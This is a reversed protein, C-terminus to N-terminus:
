APPVVKSARFKAGAMWFIVVGATDIPIWFERPFDVPIFPNFVVAFATFILVWRTGALSNALVAMWVAAATVAWRAVVYLEYPGGLITLVCFVVGIVAPAMGPYVTVLPVGDLQKETYGPAAPYRRTAHLYPDFGQSEYPVGDIPVPPQQVTAAPLRQAADSGASKPVAAACVTLSRVYIWTDLPVWQLGPYKAMLSTGVLLQVPVVSPASGQSSAVEILGENRLQAQVATDGRLVVEQKAEMSLNGPTGVHVQMIRRADEPRDASSTMNLVLVCSRGWPSHNKQGKRGGCPTSRGINPQPCTTALDLVLDVNTLVVQYFVHELKLTCSSPHFLRHRCGYSHPSVYPFRCRTILGVSRAPPLFAM